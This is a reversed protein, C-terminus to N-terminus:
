AFPSKGALTEYVMIGLGWWDVSKNHGRSNLLEPAIYETTGCFTHSMRLGKMDKKSIGFDTLKLYGERDLIVNEPKLDRYIVGKSHLYHIALM